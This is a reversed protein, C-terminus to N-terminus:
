RPTTNTPLTRMCHGAYSKCTPTLAAWRPRASAPLLLGKEAADWTQRSHEWATGLLLLQLHGGVQHAGAGSAAAWERLASMVIERGIMVVGPVALAARSLPEPPSVALLVLTTCVMLKDAVPDLFAGLATTLKMQATACPVPRM